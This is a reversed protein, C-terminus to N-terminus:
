GYATGQGGDGTNGAQDHTVEETMGALREEVKMLRISTLHGPQAQALAAELVATTYGNEYIIDVRQQKGTSYGLRFIAHQKLEPM